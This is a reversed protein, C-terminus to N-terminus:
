PAIIHSKGAACEQMECRASGRQWGGHAEGPRLGIGRPWHVPDHSERGGAAIVDNRPQHTLPKGLPKTLGKDDLIAWTGAWIDCGLRAAFCGRSPILKKKA